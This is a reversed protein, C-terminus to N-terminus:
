DGTFKAFAEAVQADTFPPVPATSTIQGQADQSDTEEGLKLKGAYVKDEAMLLDQIKTAKGLVLMLLGTAAPDLTGCHGVKKLGFKRRVRDVLDHSTPGKPKDLLLVGDIDM